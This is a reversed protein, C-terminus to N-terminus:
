KESKDRPKKGTLSRLLGWEKVGHQVKGSFEWVNVLKVMETIRGERESISFTLCDSSPVIKLMEASFVTLWFNRM